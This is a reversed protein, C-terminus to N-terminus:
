TGPRGGLLIMLGRRGGKRLGKRTKRKPSRMM